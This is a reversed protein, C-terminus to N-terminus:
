ESYESYVKKRKKPKKKKSSKKTSSIGETVDPSEVEQLITDAPESQSDTTSFEDSPPSVAASQEKSFIFCGQFNPSKGMNSVTMKQTCKDVSINNNALFFLVDDLVVAEPNKNKKGAPPKSVTAEVIVTDETEKVVRLKAM